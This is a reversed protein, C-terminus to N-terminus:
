RATEREETFSTSILSRHIPQDHVYRHVMISFRYSRKTRGNRKDLDTRAFPDRNRDGYMDDISLIPITIKKDM